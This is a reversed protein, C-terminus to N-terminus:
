RPGGQGEWTTRHNAPPTKLIKFGLHGPVALLVIDANIIFSSVQKIDRADVKLISISPHNKIKDNVNDIDIDGLSVDHDEALDLAMTQGIMGSGIQCIKAM